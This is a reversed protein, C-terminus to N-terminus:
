PKEAIGSNKGKAQQDHSDRWNLIMRKIRGNPLAGYTAELHVLYDLQERRVTDPDIKARRRKAYENDYGLKRQYRCEASCTRRKRHRTPPQFERGCIICRRTPIQRAAKKKQYYQKDWEIHHLHQCEVSCFQQAYHNPEFARGCIICTKLM